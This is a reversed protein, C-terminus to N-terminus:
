LSLILYLAAYTLAVLAGAGIALTVYDNARAKKNLYRTATVQARASIAADRTAQRHVRHEYDTM